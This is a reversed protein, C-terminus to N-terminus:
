APCGPGESEASLDPATKKEPPPPLPQWHTCALELWTGDIDTWAPKGDDESYYGVFTTPWSESPAYLLIMQGDKPASDITRWESM